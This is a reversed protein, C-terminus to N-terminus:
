GWLERYLQSLITVPLQMIIGCSLENRGRGMRLEKGESGCTNTELTSGLLHGEVKLVQGSSSPLSGEVRSPLSYRRRPACNEGLLFLSREPIPTSYPSTFETGSIYRKLLKVSHLNNRMELIVSFM